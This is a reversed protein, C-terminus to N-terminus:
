RHPDNPESDEEKEHQAIITFKDQAMSTVERKILRNDSLFLVEYTYGRTGFELEQISIVTSVVNKWPQLQPRGSIFATPEPGYVVTGPTWM